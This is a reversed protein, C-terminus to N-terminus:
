CKALATFLKKCSGFQQSHERKQEIVEMAPNCSVFNSFQLRALM